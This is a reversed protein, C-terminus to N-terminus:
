SLRELVDSVFADEWARRRAQSVDLGVTRDTSIPHAALAKRIAMEFAFPAMAIQLVDAAVEAFANLRHDAKTAPWEDHYRRGAKLILRRATVDIM